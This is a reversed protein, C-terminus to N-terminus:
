ATLRTEKEEEAEEEVLEPPLSKSTKAGLQKMREVSGILNGRGDKLKNMAQDYTDQLRAAQKGISQMDEVFGVFKDYLAGSQRAIEQANRNQLEIRWLSAITRLTAFLTAPCVIVIKKGWAHSHLEQDHQVAISYAGEVPIFMLVFDPTGLKEIDQYRKQELGHIHAKVSKLFERLHAARNTEDAEACFREYSSLSVKSDVIIHKNEPLSVIVDPQLRNGSPGTLGMEAGQVIYDIDRRLGSEELIRELMVEGWNGQAKVDGRLAKTLSDTQLVIKQIEAKLTHQEKGQTSFSEAIQKQFEGLRERLPNLLDGIQKQSQTTFKGSVNELIKNATNNFEARLQEQQDKMQTKLAKNEAEASLAREQMAKYEALAAEATELKTSLATNEHLAADYDRRPVADTSQQKSKLRGIAFGCALAMAALLIETMGM